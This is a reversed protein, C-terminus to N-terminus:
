SIHQGIHRSIHRDVAGILCLIWNSQANPKACKSAITQYDSLFTLEM